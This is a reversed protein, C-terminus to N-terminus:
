EIIHVIRRTGPEVLVTRNEVVIYDYQSDIAEVGLPRVEVVDPLTSGVVIETGVPIDSPAPGENVVYDRIMADEESTIIVTSQAAAVGTAAILMGGAILKTILAKMHAEM